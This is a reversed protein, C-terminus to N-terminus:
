MIVNYGLINAHLSSSQTPTLQSNANASLRKLLNILMNSPFGNGHCICVPLLVKHVNLTITSPTRIRLSFFGFVFINEVKEYIEKSNRSFNSTSNIIESMRTALMKDGPGKDVAAPMSFLKEEATTAKLM